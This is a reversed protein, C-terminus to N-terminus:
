LQQAMEIAEEMSCPKATRVKRWSVGSKAMKEISYRGNTEVVRYKASHRYLVPNPELRWDPVSARLNNLKAMLASASEFRAGPDVKCCQRVVSVLKQPCWPPLSKLDLLKGKVIRREIIENACFDNAPYPLELWRTLEKPKLWARQDYPLSGGLLQYLILGLQYVDSQEYARRSTIEEPPRYILSHRSLTEAYGQDGKKAVSGFDGIVLRDGSNCFINSPKLDRHLFGKGHIFSAGAAIDLLM